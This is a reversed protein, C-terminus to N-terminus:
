LAPRDGRPRPFSCWPSVKANMSPDIGAHAPSAAPCCPRVGPWSTSGRTPPPLKISKGMEDRDLPRDGRPRPFGSTRRTSPNHTPDIGAHAPSALGPCIWVTQCLTSGRTPPPLLRRAPPTASASPRDGRPRPFGSIFFMRICPGLDIGAHAPSAHAPRRQGSHALTSGRTPPPLWTHLHALRIPSPRDGRPRPFRGRRLRLLRPLLDIGAHAPSAAKTTLALSAM